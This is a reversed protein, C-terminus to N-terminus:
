GPAAEALPARIYISTPDIIDFVPPIPLAPPSPSAWEGVEAKLDAVVGDFPARLETKNLNARALDISAQAREANARSAQCRAASADSQSQLRDVMEVSVIRDDKLHLTPKP